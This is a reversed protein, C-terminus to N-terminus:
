RQNCERGLKSACDKLQQTIDTHEWPMTSANSGFHGYCSVDSFIPQRLGFKQIVAAPRMDVLAMVADYIAKEEVTATGFTDIRVSVPEALGIAYSLQVECQDALGAAM